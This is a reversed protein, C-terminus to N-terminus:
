KLLHINKELVKLKHNRNNYLLRGYVTEEDRSSGKGLNSLSYIYGHVIYNRFASCDIWFGDVFNKISDKRTM